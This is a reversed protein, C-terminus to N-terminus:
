AGAQHTTLRQLERRPWDADLHYGRQDCWDIIFRWEDAAEPIGRLIEEFVWPGVNGMGCVVMEDARSRALVDISAGRGKVVFRDPSGPVRMSVHGHAAVAGSSLTVM